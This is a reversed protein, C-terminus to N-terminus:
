AAYIEEAGESAAASFYPNRVASTMVLDVGRDLLKELDERLGFYAAFADESRHRTM